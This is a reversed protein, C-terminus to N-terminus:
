SDRSRAVTLRTEAGSLADEGMGGVFIANNYVRACTRSAYLTM